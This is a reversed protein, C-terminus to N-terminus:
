KVSVKIKKFVGNQAYAYIYCNGSAVAKIKGGSVIKAVTPASSQYRLGVHNAVKCGRSKKAKAKLALTKGKKLKAAKKVIKKSVYVSTNNSKKKSGKTAVHIQKSTSVINGVNDVAVAIFKYYTSKKLKSGNINGITTKDDLIVEKIKELTNYKGCKVGYIITKDATAPMNWKLTISNKTQKTSRFTLRHFKSGEPDKESSYSTLFPDAAEIAADEGLPTGDYGMKETRDLMPVSVWRAEGCRSCVEYNQGENDYTPEEFVFDLQWDHGLPPIVMDDDTAYEYNCWYDKFLRGCVECKYYAEHGPTECKAAKAPWLVPYHGPGVVVEKDVVQGCSKCVTREVYTGGKECIDESYNVKETDGWFHYHDPSIYRFKMERGANDIPEIRGGYLTRTSPDKDIALGGYTTLPIDFGLSEQYGKWKKKDFFPQKWFVSDTGDSTMTYTDSKKEVVLPMVGPRHDTNNLPKYSGDTYKNNDMVQEDIHWIILGGANNYTNMKEYRNALGADYKETTRAEILYYEKSHGPVPIKVITNQALTDYDQGTATYVGTKTVTKPKIWGLEIKCWPDFSYMIYSKKGNLGPVDIGWSGNAMLSVWGVSFRKWTKQSELAESRDYLDPLGLHHGLEHALSSRRGIVEIEENEANKEVREAMSVYYDIKVKKESRAVIPVTAKTYQIQWQHAHLYKDAPRKKFSDEPGTDYGGVIFATCFENPDLEGNGNLDYKPFNVYKAATRIAVAFAEGMEKVRASDSLDGWNTHVNDINVHIIGDNVKDNKNTNGDVGYASTEEVPDFTFQGYSQDRYFERVSTGGYLSRDFIETYWNANDLYPMKEQPTSGGFGIVIVALPMAKDTKPLYGAQLKMGGKSSQEGMRSDPISDLKVLKNPRSPDAAEEATLDADTDASDAYVDDFGVCAMGALFLVLSLLASFLVRSVKHSFCSYM